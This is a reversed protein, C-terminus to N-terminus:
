FTNRMTNFKLFFFFFSQITSRAFHSTFFINKLREGGRELSKMERANVGGEGGGGGEKERENEM